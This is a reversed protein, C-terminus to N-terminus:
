YCRIIRHALQSALPRRKVGIRKVAPSIRSSLCALRRPGNWPSSAKGQTIGRHEFRALGSPAVRLVELYARLFWPRALSHILWTSSSAEIWPAGMANFYYTSFIIFVIICTPLFATRVLPLRAPVLTLIELIKSLLKTSTSNGLLLVRFHLTAWM